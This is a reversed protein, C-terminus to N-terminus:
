GCGKGEGEGEGRVRWGGPFHRQKRWPVFLASSALWWGRCCPVCDAVGHQTSPSLYGLLALLQAGLARAAAQGGGKRRLTHDRLDSSGLFCEATARDIEVGM